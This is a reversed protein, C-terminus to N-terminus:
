REKRVQNEMCEATSGQMENTPLCIVTIRFGTRTIQTSTRFTVLVESAQINLWPQGGNSGCLVRNSIGPASINIYDVCLREEVIGQNYLVKGQLDLLTIHLQIRKGAGCSINYYVLRNNAYTKSFRRRPSSIFKINNGPINRTFRRYAVCHLYPFSLVMKTFHIIQQSYPFM